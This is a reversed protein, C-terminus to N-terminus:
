RYSNIIVVNFVLFSEQNEKIFYVREIFMVNEIFKM